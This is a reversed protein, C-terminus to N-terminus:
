KIFEPLNTKIFKLCYQPTKSLIKSLEVGWTKKSFDINNEIITEKWFKIYEEKKQKKTLNIKKERNKSKYTDQISDCNSCLFRLNELRNDNNIGNIHDLILPMIKGQWHNDCGCVNCTYPILNNKIVWSKVVTRSCNSEICFINDKTRKVRKDSTKFHSINVHWYFL